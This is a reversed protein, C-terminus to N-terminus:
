VDFIVRARWGEEGGEVLLGHFTVGKIERVPAEEVRRLRIEAELRSGELTSFDAMALALSETEHWFLLERLWARLLAPLDDATLSLGRPAPDSASGAEDPDPLPAGQILWAMGMAARTFLDELTPAEVDLGVDATHDLPTVGSPVEEGTM